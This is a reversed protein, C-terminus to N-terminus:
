WLQEEKIKKSCLIGQEELAKAYSEVVLEIYKMMKEDDELFGLEKAKDFLAEIGEKGRYIPRLGRHLGSYFRMFDIIFETPADEKVLMCHSGMFSSLEESKDEYMFQEPIFYCMPDALMCFDFYGGREYRRLTKTAYRYYNRVFNAYDM